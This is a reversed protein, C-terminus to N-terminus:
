SSPPGDLPVTLSFVSGGGTRPRYTVTGGHAEAIASALPLGVGLGGGGFAHSSTRHHRIESIEYFVEFIKATEEEPVGIGTDRVECVLERGTAKIEVEIRGGDPTFKVANQVLAGVARTLKRPDARVPTDDAVGCLLRIDLDRLEMFMDCQDAVRRAVEGVTGARLHIPIGGGRDLALDGLDEVVEKLRRLARDAQEVLSRQELPLDSAKGALLSVMGAAVTTPTRIEHSALAIFKRRRADLDRLKEVVERLERNDRAFRFREDVHQVVTTLQALRVPKLLFDYAGHRLAEVADDVTGYGTIIVVETAPWRERVRALLQLGSIGPMKLDTLVLDAPEEELAWLAADGSAATRVRHGLTGLHESFMERIQAEDDVVFLNM